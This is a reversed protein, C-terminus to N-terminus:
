QWDEVKLLHEITPTADWLGLHGEARFPTVLRRPNALEWHYIPKEGPQSWQAWPNSECGHFACEPTRELHCGLLHVIGLVRGRNKEVAAMVEPSFEPFQGPVPRALAAAAHIVIWDQHHTRWTRNEIDKGGPIGQMIWSAWPERVTLVRPM